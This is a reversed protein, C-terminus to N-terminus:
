QKFVRPKRYLANVEAMIEEFQFNQWKYRNQENIFQM